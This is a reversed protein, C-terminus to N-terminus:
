NFSMKLLNMVKLSLFKRCLYFLKMKLTPLYNGTFNEKFDVFNKLIVM